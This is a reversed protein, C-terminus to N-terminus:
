SRRPAPRTPGSFADLIDDPLPADFDDPVDFVGEDVGLCRKRSARVPVLGAVPRGHRSIVIEEGREVRRLLETWRTKAERIGIM